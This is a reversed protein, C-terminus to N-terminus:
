LKEFVTRELARRFEKGPIFRVNLGTINRSTVEEPKDSGVATISVHFSGLAGLQVIQGAMLEEPIVILFAELAAALDATALTSIQAAKQAIARQDSYGTSKVVPYYRPPAALNQPNKKPVVNYKIPMRSAGKQPVLQGAFNIWLSCNTLRKAAAMDPPGSALNIFPRQGM